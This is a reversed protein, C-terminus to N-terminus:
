VAVARTTLIRTQGGAWYGDDGYEHWGQEFRADDNEEYSVLRFEDRLTRNLTPAPPTPTPTPPPPASGQLFGVADLFVKKASTQSSTVFRLVTNVAAFGALDYSRRVMSSDSGPGAIRGLEPFTAGGDRSAQISVFESSSAYGERRYDLALAATAAGGLDM